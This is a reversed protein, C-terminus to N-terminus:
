KNCKPCEGNVMKEGCSSCYKAGADGRLRNIYRSRAKDADGLGADGRFSQDSSQQRQDRMGDNNKDKTLMSVANTFCANVYDQSQGDLKIDPFVKAIVAAKIESDTKTSVDESDLCVTATRELALRAQVGASVEKSIDRAKLTTLESKMSDGDGRAKALDSTLTEITKNAKGLANIVEPAAEYEIGDLNVRPMKAEKKTYTFGDLANEFYASMHKSAEAHSIGFKKSVENVAKEPNSGEPLSDFYEKVQSRVSRSSDRGSKKITSRLEQREAKLEELVDPDDTLKIERELRALDRKAGGGGGGGSGGREGPRGEHGFNGSGPGGDSHCKCTTCNECQIADGSDLKIQTIDGARAVDVLALHNYRINTQIHTYPEGEFVGDQHVLDTEYGCSLKNRGRKEAMEITKGDTIVLPVRVCTGDPRVNEGTMGIQYEKANESTVIREKPHGNVLPVMKLTDLSDAKFVERPHRLELRVSGDANHYKFVGTRTVIADTRLFGDADKYTKVKYDQRDYRIVHESDASDKKQERGAEKYAIAVAQDRSHGAKILEAINESITKDDSGKKLPM